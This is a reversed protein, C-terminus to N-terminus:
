QTKYEHRFDRYGSDTRHLRTKRDWLYAIFIFLLNAILVISTRLVYHERIIPPEEAFVMGTFAGVMLVLLLYSYINKKLMLWGILVFAIELIYTLIPYHWLGLGVKSNGFFLSLDPTHVILDIVWHSLICLGLIWAWTRKEMAWFIFFVIASALLAGSLSHSYPLDLYNRFFPNDSPMYSAKEIGLLVLTFAIIDLLQVSTFLLWLPIDSAKKKVIYAVGYHGIFM